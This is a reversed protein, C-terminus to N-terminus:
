VLRAQANCYKHQIKIPTMEVLSQFDCIVFTGLTGNSSDLPLHAQYDTRRSIHRLILELFGFNQHFLGLLNPVTDNFIVSTQLQPALVIISSVVLKHAPIISSVVHKPNETICSSSKDEVTEREHIHTLLYMVDTHFCVLYYKGHKARLSQLCLRKAFQPEPDQSRSYGFISLNLSVMCMCILDNFFLQESASSRLLPYVFCVPILRPFKRRSPLNLM